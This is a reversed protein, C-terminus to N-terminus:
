DGAVEKGDGYLRGVLALGWGLAYLGYSARTLRKYILADYNKQGVFMLFTNAPFNSAENAFEGWDHMLPGLVQLEAVDGFRGATFGPDSLKAVAAVRKRELEELRRELDSYKNQQSQPLTDVLPAMSEVMSKTQTTIKRLKTVIEKRKRM